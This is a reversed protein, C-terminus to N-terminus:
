KAPSYRFPHRKSGRGHKEIEGREVLENLMSIFRSRRVKCLLQLQDRTPQAPSVNKLVEVIIEKIKNRRDASKKMLFTLPSPPTDEWHFGIKLRIENNMDM